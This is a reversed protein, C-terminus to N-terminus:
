WMEQVQSSQPQRYDHHHHRKYKKRVTHSSHNRKKKKKKTVKRAEDIGTRGEKKRTTKISSSFFM